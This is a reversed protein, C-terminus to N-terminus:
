YTSAHYPSSRHTPGVNDAFNEGFKRSGVMNVQWGRNRLYDRLYKRYTRGELEPDGPDGYTISAGLPMIRLYFNGARAQLRAPEPFLNLDYNPSTKPLYAPLVSCILTSLVLAGLSAASWSFRGM